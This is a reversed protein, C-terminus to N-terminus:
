WWSKKELENEKKWSYIWDSLIHLTEKWKKKIGNSYSIKRFNADIGSSRAFHIKHLCVFRCQCWCCLIAAGSADGKNIYIYVNCICLLKTCEGMLNKSKHTQSCFFLTARQLPAIIVCMAHEISTNAWTWGILKRKFYNNKKGIKGWWKQEITWLDIFQPLTGVLFSHLSSNDAFFFM